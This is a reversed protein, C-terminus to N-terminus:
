VNVPVNDWQFNNLVFKQAKKAINKAAIPQDFILQIKKSFGDATDAILIEENDKAQIGGNAFSTAVVPVGAMMAELVKNQQGAVFIMPAICVKATQYVDKLDRVYGKANAHPFKKLYNLFSDPAGKGILEISYNSLKKQLIPDVNDFFWRLAEISEVGMFGVFVIKNDNKKDELNSLLQRSVGNSVCRFHKRHKKWESHYNIDQESILWVETCITVNNKEYAEVRPQEILLVLKLFLSKTFKKMRTIYLGMTDTYDGIIKINPYTKRIVKLVPLSRIHFGYVVDIKHKEIIELAMQNMKNSKFKAVQLPTWSFIAILMDMAMKLQSKKCHYTTKFIDERQQVPVSESFNLCVVNHHKSFQEAINFVRVKDGRDTPYPYRQTIMLINAMSM